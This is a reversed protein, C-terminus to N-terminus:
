RWDMEKDFVKPDLIENEGFQGSPSQSRGSEPHPSAQRSSPGSGTLYQDIHIKKGHAIDRSLRFLARGSEGKTGQHALNFYHTIDSIPMPSKQLAENLEKRHDLGPTPVRSQWRSPVPSDFRLPPWDFAPLHPSPSTYGRPTPANIFGMEEETDFPSLREEHAKDKGTDSSTSEPSQDWEAHYPTKDFPHDTTDFPEKAPSQDRVVITDMAPSGPLESSQERSTKRSKKDPHTPLADLSTARHKGPPSMSQSELAANNRKLRSAARVTTNTDEDVERLWHIIDKEPTTSQYWDSEREDDPESISAWSKNELETFKKGGQQDKLPPAYDSITVVGPSYGYFRVRELMNKICRVAQKLHKEPIKQEYDKRYAKALKEEFEPENPLAGKRLETKLEERRSKKLHGSRLALDDRISRELQNDFDQLVKNVQGRRNFGKFMLASSSIRSSHISTPSSM